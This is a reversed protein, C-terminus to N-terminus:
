KWADCCHPRWRLRLVIDGAQFYVVEGVMGFSQCRVDCGADTSGGSAGVPAIELGVIYHGLHGIARSYEGLDAINDIGGFIFIQDLRLGDEACCGAEGLRNQIHQGSVGM